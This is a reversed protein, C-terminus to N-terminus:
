ETITVAVPDFGEAKVEVRDGVKMFASQDGKLKISLKKYRDMGLLNSMRVLAKPTAVAVGGPTGTLICDGPNLQADPYKKLIYRLMEKPTFIMNSTMESQRQTGNVYTELKVCPISNVTPNNPIWVQNSMPTFGPLSKSIGWYDFRQNTGEGLLAISRSSLDNAIFFGIPPVFDDTELDTPHIEELLIFGLEVEYDLMATIESFEKAVKEGVEGELEGAAAILEKSSPMKVTSNPATLSSLKKRFIPPLADPDFSSASEKMHNSYTLGMGYMNRIPSLSDLSVFQGDSIKLCTFAAPDPINSLPRFLYYALGLMLLLLVTLIIKLIRM